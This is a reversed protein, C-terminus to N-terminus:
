KKYFVTKKKIQIVIYHSQKSNNVAMDYTKWIKVKNVIFKCNIKKITELFFKNKM